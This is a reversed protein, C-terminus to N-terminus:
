NDHGRLEKIPYFDLIRSLGRLLILKHKLREKVVELHLSREVHSEVSRFKWLLWAAFFGSVVFFVDVGVFGGGFGSIGFHYLVVVLVAWARLGNIDSRFESSRTM